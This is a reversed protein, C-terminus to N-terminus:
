RDPDPCLDDMVSKADDAAFRIETVRHSPSRPSASMRLSVPASLTVAINCGALTAIRGTAGEVAPTTTTEDHHVGDSAIDERPV